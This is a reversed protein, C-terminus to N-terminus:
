NSIDLPTTRITHKIQESLKANCLFRIEVADAAEKRVLVRLDTETGEYVIRFNMQKTENLALARFTNDIDNIETEGFGKSILPQIAVLLTRLKTLDLEASTEKLGSCGALFILLSVILPRM